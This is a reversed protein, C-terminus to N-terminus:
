PRVEQVFFLILVLFFLVGAAVQRAKRVRREHRRREAESIWLAAPAEPEDPEPDPVAPTRYTPIQDRVERAVTPHM